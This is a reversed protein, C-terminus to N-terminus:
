VWTEGMTAIIGKSIMKGKAEEMQKERKFCNLNWRGKIQKTNCPILRSTRLACVRCSCPNCLGLDSCKQGQPM